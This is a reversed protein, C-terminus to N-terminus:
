QHLPLDREERMELDKRRREKGTRMGGTEAGVRVRGRSLLPGSTRGWFFFM